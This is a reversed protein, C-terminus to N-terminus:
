KKVEKCKKKEIVRFVKEIGGFVKDIEENIINLRMNWQLSDDRKMSRILNKLKEFAEKEEEKASQYGMRFAEFIIKHKIIWEKESLTKEKKMENSM